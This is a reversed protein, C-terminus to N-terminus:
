KKIFIEACAIVEALLYSSLWWHNANEYKNAFVIDHEASNLLCFFYKTQVGPGLYAGIAFGMDVPLTRVVYFSM